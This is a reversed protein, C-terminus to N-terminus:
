DACAAEPNQPGHQRRLLRVPPIQTEKIRHFAAILFGKGRQQAGFRVHIGGLPRHLQAPM